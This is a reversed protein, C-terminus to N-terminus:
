HEQFKTQSSIVAPTSERDIANLWRGMFILAGLLYILGMPLWMLIGALQQDQILTLGWAIVSDAYAPYWAIESFTMLAGLLGGQLSMTFLSLLSSGYGVWNTDATHLISWWYLLSTAFFSIHELIHILENGLAAEYLIPLHWLWLTGAHLGWIFFPQTLTNWVTTTWPHQQLRTLRQRIATPLGRMFPAQPMSIMLLPPAMFILLDHQAMHASFLASGLADLPSILAIFVIMMGAIFAAAQGVSVVQGIGRRQWFHRVGRNYLFVTVCLSVLVPVDGNWSTGIDHPQPPIGDHGMLFLAAFALWRSPLFSRFLRSPRM